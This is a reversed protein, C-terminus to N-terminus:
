FYGQSAGALRTSQNAANIQAQMNGANNMNNAQAAGTGVIGSLGVNGQNGLLSGLNAGTQLSGAGLAQGTGYAQDAGTPGGALGALRNQYDGFLQNQRNWWNGYDQLAMGQARDTMGRMVSGSELLGRSAAGQQVQRLAEDVAYQYGPSHQFRQMSPDGLLQNGPTQLYNNVAQSPDSQMQLGAGGQPYYTGGQQSTGPAAGSYSTTPTNPYAGTPAFNPGSMGPVPSASNSLLGPGGMPSGGPVGGGSGGGTGIARGGGGGSGSTGSGIPGGMISANRAADPQGVVTLGDQGTTQPNTSSASGSQNPYSSVGTQGANYRAVAADIAAQGYPAAERIMADLGGGVAGQVASGMGMPSAGQLAGQTVSNAGMPLLMGQGFNQQPQLLGATQTGQLYFPVNAM